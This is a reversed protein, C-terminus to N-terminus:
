LCLWHTVFYLSKVVICWKAVNWTYLCCVSWSVFWCCVQGLKLVTTGGRVRVAQCIQHSFTEASVTEPAATWTSHSQEKHRGSNGDGVQTQQCLSRTQAKSNRGLPTQQINGSSHVCSWVVSALSLINAAKVTDEDSQQYSKRQIIETEVRWFIVAARNSLQIQAAEFKGSFYCFDSKDLWVQAFVSICRSRQDTNRRRKQNLHREETRCVQNICTEAEPWYESIQVSTQKWWSWASHLKSCDKSAPSSRSWHSRWYTIWCRNNQHPVRRSGVGKSPLHVKDMRIFFWCVFVAAKLYYVVVTCILSHRSPVCVQTWRWKRQKPLPTAASSTANRLKRRPGSLSRVPICKFLQDESLVSPRQRLICTSRYKHSQDVKFHAM